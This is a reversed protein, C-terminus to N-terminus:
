LGRTRQHAPKMTNARQRHRSPSPLGRTKTSGAKSPQGAAGEQESGAAGPNPLPAKAPALDEPVYISNSELSPKISLKCIIELSV